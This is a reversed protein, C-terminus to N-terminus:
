HYGYNQRRRSNKSKLDKLGTKGIILNEICILLQSLLFKMKWNKTSLVMLFVTFNVDELMRILPIGHM